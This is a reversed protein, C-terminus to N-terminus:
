STERSLEHVERTGKIFDFGQKKHGSWFNLAFVSTMKKKHKKRKQALVGRVLTV